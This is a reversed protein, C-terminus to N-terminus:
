PGEWVVEGERVVKEMKLEGSRDWELHLFPVDEIFLIEAILAGSEDWHLEM